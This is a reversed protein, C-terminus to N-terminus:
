ATAVLEGQYSRMFDMSRQATARLWADYSDEPLVVVMRKEDAPKHFNHMLPHDDANITLMTYSRVVSGDPAKWGTWLGAIGMPEGDARAIRTAVAKGSRWDPEYIADAPIVCHRALRWADKFSPKEPVTESRANYTQRAIKTDKAWHPVMGFLGVLAERAPVAEDGADAERPQRIFLGKYGPWLDGLGPDEPMDFGFHKRFQERKKIGQYHSCM